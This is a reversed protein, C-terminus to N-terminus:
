EDEVEDEKKAEVLRRSHRWADYGWLLFVAYACIMGAMAVNPTLGNILLVLTGGLFGSVSILLKTNFEGTMRKQTNLTIAKRATHNALERLAVLSQQQEEVSVRPVQRTMVAQEDSTSPIAGYHKYESGSESEFQQGEPRSQVSKTPETPEPTRTTAKQQVPKEKGATSSSSAISVPSDGGGKARQLLRQMYVEISEEEDYDSAESLDQNSEPRNSKVPEEAYSQQSDDTEYQPPEDSAAAIDQSDDELHNANISSQSNLQSESSGRYGLEELLGTGYAEISEESNEEVESESGIGTVGAVSHDAYSVDSNLDESSPATFWAPLEPDSDRSQLDSAFADQDDISVNSEVAGSEVESIADLDDIGFRSDHYTSNDDAFSQQPAQGPEASYDVESGFLSAVEHPTDSQTELTSYEYGVKKSQFEYTESTEAPLYREPEQDLYQNTFEGIEAGNNSSAKPYQTAFYEDDPVPLPAEIALQSEELIQARLPDFCEPSQIAPSEYAEITSSAEPQLNADDHQSRASSSEAEYTATEYQATEYQPEAYQPEDHRLTSQSAVLLNELREFRSDIVASTDQFRQEYREALNTSLDRLSEIVSSRIAELSDRLPEIAAKMENAVDAANLKPELSPSSDAPALMTPLTAIVSAGSDCDEVTNEIDVEGAVDIESPDLSTLSQLRTAQDAVDGPTLQHSAFQNKIFSAPIVQIKAAGLQVYTPEDILWERILRGSIKVEGEIAQVLIHNRGFTIAAHIAELGLTPIVVSCGENSGLTVSECEIKWSKKFEGNEGIWDIQGLTSNADSEYQSSLRTPEFRQYSHLDAAIIFEKQM